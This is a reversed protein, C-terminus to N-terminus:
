DGQILTRDLAAFLHDQTPQDAVIVDRWALGSVKQAVAQSLALVKVSKLSPNIKAGTALDVFIQATRPSYFLIHTATGNTLHHLAQPGLQKIVATGYLVERQVQYGLRSLSEALQGAIETGAAHILRGAKPSVKNMVLWALQDVDGGASEVREFGLELATRGTADGVAWVPIDRRLTAQALARVGNASTAMFGAVGELDALDVPHFIVQMMPEILVEFGRQCLLEATTAADELPRTVVALM